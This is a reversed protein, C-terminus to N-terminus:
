FGVAIGTSVTDGRGGQRWEWGREAISTLDLHIDPELHLPRVLYEPLNSTLGAAFSKRDFAWIAAGRIM